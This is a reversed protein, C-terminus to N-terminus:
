DNTFLGLMKKIHFPSFIYFYSRSGNPELPSRCSTRHTEIYTYTGRHIYIQIHLINDTVIGALSMTKIPGTKFNQDNSGERRLFHERFLFIM